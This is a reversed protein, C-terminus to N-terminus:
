KTEGKLYDGIADLLLDEFMEDIGGLDQVCVDLTNYANREIEMKVEFHNVDFGEDMEVEFQYDTGNSSHSLITFM